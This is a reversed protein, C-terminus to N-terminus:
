ERASEARGLRRRREEADLFASQGTVAAEEGFVVRALMLVGVFALTMVFGSLANSAIASAFSPQESAGPPPPPPLSAHALPAPTEEAASARQKALLKKRMAKSSVDEVRLEGHIKPVDAADPLRHAHRVPARIPARLIAARVRPGASRLM